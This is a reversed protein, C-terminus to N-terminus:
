RAAQGIAGQDGGHQRQHQEAAQIQGPAVPQVPEQRLQDLDPLKRQGLGCQKHKAHHGAGDGFAVHPQQM